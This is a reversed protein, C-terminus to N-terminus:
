GDDGGLALETPTLGIAAAIADFTCAAFCHLNWWRDGRRITLSPSNDQHAPCRAQWGRRVKRVRDFRHLLQDATLSQHPRPIFRRPKRWGDGVWVVKGEAEYRVMDRVLATAVPDLPVAELGFAYRRVEAAECESRQQQRVVDMCQETEYRARDTAFDDAVFWDDLSAKREQELWDPTTNLSQSNTDDGAKPNPADGRKM